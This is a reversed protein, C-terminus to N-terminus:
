YLAIWEYTIGNRNGLGARTSGMHNEWTASFTLTNGSLKVTSYTVYPSAGESTTNEERWLETKQAGNGLTVPNDYAGKNGYGDHQGVTSFIHLLKPTLPLTMTRAAGTGTYEGSAVRTIGLEDIMDNKTFFYLKGSSDTKVYRDPPMQSIGTGGRSIPLQEFAIQTWEGDKEQIFVAEQSYYSTFGSPLTDWIYGAWDAIEKADDLQRMIADLNVMTYRAFTVSGDALVTSSFVATFAVSVSGDTSVAADLVTEGSIAEADGGNVSITLSTIESDKDEVQFLLKVRDGSQGANYITQAATMTTAQAKGTLKVTTGTVSVDCNTGTWSASGINTVTFAPRLWVQGIPFDAAQNDGAGPTDASVWARGGYVRELLSAALKEKTVSGNVINGSAAEALQSQVNEIAAQVTTAHVESTEEFPINKAELDPILKSNLYAQIALAAEDFKAKLQQATLGDESNPLDSLKQIINLDDTMKPLAM